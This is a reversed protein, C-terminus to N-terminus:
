HETEQSIAKRSYNPYALKRFCFEFTSDGVVAATTASILQVWESNVREEEEMTMM